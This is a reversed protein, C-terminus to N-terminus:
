VIKTDREFFYYEKKLYACVTKPNQRQSQRVNYGDNTNAHLAHYLQLPSRPGVTCRTRPHRVVATQRNRIYRRPLDLDAAGATLAWEGRHKSAHNLPASCGRCPHEPRACSCHLTMHVPAHCPCVYATSASCPPLPLPM